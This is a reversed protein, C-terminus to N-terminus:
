VTREWIYVSKYPPMNNHPQSGGVSSTSSGQGLGGGATGNINYGGSTSWYAIKHSHSPM